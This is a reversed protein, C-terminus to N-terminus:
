SMSLATSRPMHMVSIRRSSFCPPLLPSQTKFFYFVWDLFFGFTRAKPKQIVHGSSNRAPRSRLGSRRPFAGAAQPLDEQHAGHGHPLLHESRFQDRRFEHRPCSSQSSRNREAVLSERRAPRSAAVSVVPKVTPKRRWPM